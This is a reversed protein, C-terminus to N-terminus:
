SRSERKRRLQRFLEASDFPVDGRPTPITRFECQLLSGAEFRHTVYEEPDMLLLQSVGIRSYDLLRARTRSITDDPSLVEIVAWPVVDCIRGAPLPRPCLMIDPIRYRAREIIQTRAEQIAEFEFEEEYQTFWLLLLKQLLSHPLTPMGREVLIGDVYEMDHEYSSNLYEDV